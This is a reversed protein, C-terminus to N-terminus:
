DKFKVYKNKLMKIRQKGNFKVCDNIHQKLIEETSFTQLCYGSLHKRGRNFTHNYM